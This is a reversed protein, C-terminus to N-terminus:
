QVETPFKLGYVQRLKGANGSAYTIGSTSANYIAYASNDAIQIKFTGTNNIASFMLKMPITYSVPEYTTGEKTKSRIFILDYYTMDASVSTAGSSNNLLTAMVPRCSGFKSLTKDVMKDMMENIGQIFNISNMCSKASLSAFLMNFANEEESTLNIEIPTDGFDIIRSTYNQPYLPTTEDFVLNYQLVCLSSSNNTPFKGSALNYSVYWDTGYMEFTISNCNYEVNDDYPTVKFPASLTWVALYVQSLAENNTLLYKGQLIM